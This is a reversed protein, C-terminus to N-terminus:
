QNIFNQSEYYNNINQMERDNEQMRYDGYEIESFPIYTKEIPTDPTKPPFQRFKAVAPVSKSFGNKIKLKAQM